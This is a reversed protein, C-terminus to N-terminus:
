KWTVPDKTISRLLVNVFALITAQVETAVPAENGTVGQFIMAGLAVINVWFTKSTFISKM